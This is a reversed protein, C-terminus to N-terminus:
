SIYTEEEDKDGKVRISIINWTKLIRIHSSLLETGPSLLTQGFNNVVPEALIMGDEVNKIDILKSM